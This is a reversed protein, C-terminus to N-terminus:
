SVRQFQFFHKLSNSLHCFGAFVGVGLFGGVLRDIILGYQLGNATGIILALELESSQKGGSSEKAGERM